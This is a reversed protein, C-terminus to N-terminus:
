IYRTYRKPDYSKKGIVDVSITSTTSSYKVESGAFEKVSLTVITIINLINFIAKHPSFKLM